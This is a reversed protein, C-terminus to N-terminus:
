GDYDQFGNHTSVSFSQSRHGETTADFLHSCVSSGVQREGSVSAPVCALNVDLNQACKLQIELFNADAVTEGEALCLVNKCIDGTTEM